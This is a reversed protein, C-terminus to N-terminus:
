WAVAAYFAIFYVVQLTFQSMVPAMTVGVVFMHVAAAVAISLPWRRRWTLLASASVTALAQLWVPQKVTELLGMSRLLELSVLGLVATALALIVDSRSVQPRPRQWPDDVGFFEGVRSPLSLRAPPM